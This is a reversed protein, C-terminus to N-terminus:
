STGMAAGTGGRQPETKKDSLHSFPQRAPVCPPNLWWAVRERYMSVAAGAATANSGAKETLCQLTGLDRAPRAPGCYCGAARRWDRSRM